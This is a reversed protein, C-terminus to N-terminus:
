YNNNKMVILGFFVVVKLYHATPIWAEQQHKNKMLIIYGRRKYTNMKEYMVASAMNRGQARLRLFTGLILM